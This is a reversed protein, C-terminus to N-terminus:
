FSNLATMNSNVIFNASSGASSTSSSNGNTIAQQQQSSTLSQETGTSSGNYKYVYIRYDKSALVISGDDMLGVDFCQAHKVKSELAAIMEGDQTFVTLNFNNHNDAVLVEGNSNIGVGIPYNTIGEGGIQRVYQGEYNFVKICHARNDSIYIEDRENSCCVGNPFELYKSCNFKHLINGMLDFIIVRMVKCEVVVIRNKADVCIGRPHQLISAGFKRVFQGYQNYIQIQHTPSRETVVIDGTSKVIAVRNPYLLQGERKGCEGFKFKFRGEKDFIQIRHSNTDAVVIDNNGNISVGSPETFQGEAVGFEGFKCSYIMKTRKIQSRAPLSSSTTSGLQQQQQHQHQLSLLNSQSDDLSFANDNQEMTTSSSSSSGDGCGGGSGCGISFTHQMLQSNHGTLSSSSNSENLENTQSGNSNNSNTSTISTQRNTSAAVVSSWSTPKTSNSNSASGNAQGSPNQNATPLKQSSNFSGKKGSNALSNSASGSGSANFHDILYFNNGNSKSDMTPVDSNSSRMLNASQTVVASSSSSSSSTSSSSSSSSSSSTSTSTSQNAQVQNNQATSENSFNTNYRIYGFSNQINQQINAYNTVFEISMLNNSNVHTKNNSNEGNSEGVVNAQETDLESLKLGKQKLMFQVIEHFDKLLIDRRETIMKVYISYTNQIENEIHSLHKQLILKQQHQHRKSSSLEASLDHSYDTSSSVPPSSSNTNSGSSISASSSLAAHNFHHQNFAHQNFGHGHQQQQQHHQHHNHQINFQNQQQQQQQQQQYVASFVAPNSYHPMLADIGGNPILTEQSCVPCTIISSTVFGAANVSDQIQSTGLLTAQILCQYCFSHLCGVLTKGNAMPDKGCIGCQQKNSQHQSSQSQNLQQFSSILENLPFMSSDDINNNNGNLVQGNQSNNSKNFLFANRKNNFYSYQSTNNNNNNSLASQNNTSLSSSSSTNNSDLHDMGGGIVSGSSTTKNFLLNNGNSSNNNNMFSVSSNANSIIDNFNFDNLGNSFGITEDSNNLLLSNNSLDNSLLFENSAMFAALPHANQHHQTSSM